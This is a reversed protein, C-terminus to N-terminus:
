AMFQSSRVPGTGVAGPFLGSLASAAEAARDRGAAGAFIGIVTPGSGCVIARDAGAGAAAALAPEIGPALSLSAPQLDNIMLESTLGSPLAAVLATHLRDLEGPARPLGLRDTERYVDATSLAFPQPIVLVGYPALAPLPKIREGAGTGLSPGPRLQGPVDAGLRAAIEAIVSGAVPALRPAARLMAAADASGGGMGAAVPIRKEITVELAPGDWGADRLAALADAVLNPGPVGDCSVRDPGTGADAFTLEDCLGVSDFLTVLEHRGDDRTPGLFLCLNIKAYARERLRGTM